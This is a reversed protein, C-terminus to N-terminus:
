PVAVVISTWDRLLLLFWRPKKFNSRVLHEGVMAEVADTFSAVRRTRTEASADDHRVSSTYRTVAVHVSLAMVHVFWGAVLPVAVPEALTPEVGHALLGVWPWTF